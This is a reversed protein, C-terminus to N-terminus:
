NKDAFYLVKGGQFRLVNVKLKRPLKQLNHGMYYPVGTERVSKTKRKYNYRRHFDQGSSASLTHMKRVERM